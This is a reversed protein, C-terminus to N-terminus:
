AHQQTGASKRQTRRQERQELFRLIGYTIGGVGVLALTFLAYSISWPIDATMMSFESMGGIGALVNLPMFVVSVVTLRKVVKNQNINIFGVSADM